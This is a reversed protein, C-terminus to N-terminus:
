KRSKQIDFDTCEGNEMHMDKTRPEDDKTARTQNDWFVVVAFKAGM